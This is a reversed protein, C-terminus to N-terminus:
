KFENYNINCKVKCLKGFLSSIMEFWPGYIKTLWPGTKLGEGGGYDAEM